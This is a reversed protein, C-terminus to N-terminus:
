LYNIKVCLFSFTQRKKRLTPGEEKNYEEKEIEEKRQTLDERLKKLEM